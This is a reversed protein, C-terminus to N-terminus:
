RANTVLQGILEARFRIPEELLVENPLEVEFSFSLGSKIPLPEAFPYWDAIGAPGYNLIGGAANASSGGIFGAAQFRRLPYTWIPKQGQYYRLISLGRVLELDTMLPNSGDISSRLFEIRFGYITYEQPAPFTGETRLNFENVSKQVGAQPSAPSFTRSVFLRQIQAGGPLLWETDWYNQDKAKENLPLQNGVALQALGRIQAELVAIRQETPAKKKFMTAPM